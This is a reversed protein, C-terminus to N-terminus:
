DEYNFATSNKLQYYQMSLAMPGSDNFVQFHETGNQIYLICSSITSCVVITCVIGLFNHDM